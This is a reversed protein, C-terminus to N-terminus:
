VRFDLSKITSFPFGLEQGGKGTYCWAGCPEGLFLTTHTSALPCCWADEGQCRLCGSKALKGMQFCECFGPLSLEKSPVCCVEMGLGDAWFNASRACHRLGPQLGAGGVVPGTQDSFRVLIIIQSKKPSSHKVLLSPRVFSRELGRLDPSLPRPLM